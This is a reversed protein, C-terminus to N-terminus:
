MSDRLKKEQQYRLSLDIMSNEHLGISKLGEFFGM